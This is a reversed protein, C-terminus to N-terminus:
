TYKRYENYIDINPIIASGGPSYHNRWAGDKIHTMAVLEAPTKSRLIDVIKKIHAIEDKGSQEWDRTDYKIKLAYKRIPRAGFIKFCRYLRPQVPGYDWAEFSDKILPYDAGGKQAMFSGHAMYLVKHLVLNSAEWDTFECIARAANLPNEIM